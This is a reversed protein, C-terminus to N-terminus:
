RAGPAPDGHEAIKSKVMKMANTLGENGSARAAQEFKSAVATQAMEWSSLQGAPRWGMGKAPGILGSHVYRGLDAGSLRQQRGSDILLRHQERLAARDEEDIQSSGLIGSIAQMSAPDMTASQNKLDDLQIKQAERQLGKAKSEDEIVSRQINLTENKFDREDKAQSLRFLSDVFWRASEMTRDKARESIQSKQIEKMTDVELQKLAVPDAIVATERQFRAIQAEQMPREAERAEGVMEREFTQRQGAMGMEHERGERVGREMAEMERQRTSAGLLGSAAELHAARQWDRRSMAARMQEQAQQELGRQQVGQKQQAIGATRSLAGGAGMVEAQAAEAMMARLGMPMPAQRPARYEMTGGPAPAPGLEEIQREYDPPPPAQSMKNQISAKRGNTRTENLVEEQRQASEPSQLYKEVNGQQFRARELDGQLQEPNREPAFRPAKTKRPQKIYGQDDYKSYPDNPM